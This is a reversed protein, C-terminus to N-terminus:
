IKFYGITAMEWRKEFDRLRTREIEVVGVPAKETFEKSALKRKIDSVRKKYYEIQLLCESGDSDMEIFYLSHNTIIPYLGGIVDIDFVVYSLKAGPILKELLLGVMMWQPNNMNSEHQHVIMEKLNHKQKFSKLEIIDEQFSDM